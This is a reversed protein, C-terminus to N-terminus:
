ACAVEHAHEDGVAYRLERLAAGFDDDSDFDQYWTYRGGVRREGREEWGFSLIANLLKWQEVREASSLDVVVCRRAAM